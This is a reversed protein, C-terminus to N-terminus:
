PALGHLPAMQNLRAPLYFSAAGTKFVPDGEPSTPATGVGKAMKQLAIEIKEMLWAGEHHMLLV